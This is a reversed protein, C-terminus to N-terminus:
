RLIRSKEINNKIIDNIQFLQKQSSEPLIYWLNDSINRENNTLKIKMNISNILELELNNYYELRKIYNNFKHIKLKYEINIISSKTSDDFYCVEDIKYYKNKQGYILELHSNITIDSQKKCSSVVCLETKTEKNEYKLQFTKNNTIYKMDNNEFSIDNMKPFYNVNFMYRALTPICNFNLIYKSM